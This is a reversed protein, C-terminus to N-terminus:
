AEVMSLIVQSESLLFTAFNPCGLERMAEALDQVSLVPSKYGAYWKSTADLFAGTNNAVLDLLFSDPHILDIGYLEKTNKPFDKINFTVLAGVRGTIAAALVHEDEPDPCDLSGVLHQYGVIDAEPFRDAMSRIHSDIKVHDSPFRRVISRITEDLIEATWRPRYLRYSALWILLGRLYLKHLCDADLLAISVM